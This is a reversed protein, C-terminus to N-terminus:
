GVLSNVIQNWEVLLIGTQGWEVLFVVSIKSKLYFWLEIGSYLCFTQDSFVQWVLRQLLELDASTQYLNTTISPWWPWYERLRVYVDKVWYGDRVRPCLGVHLFTMM